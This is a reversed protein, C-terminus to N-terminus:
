HTPIVGNQLNEKQTVHRLNSRRNNLKDRDIHDTVFGKPPKGSILHHIKTVKGGYWTCPYGYGDCSWNFRDLHAMDKDVIAFGKGKAIELKACDSYITAPRRDFRSKGLISQGRKQRYYHKQCLKKALHPNQCSLISCEKM